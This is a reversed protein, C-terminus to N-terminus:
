ETWTTKIINDIEAKNNFSIIMILGFSHRPRKYKRGLGVQVTNSDIRTFRIVINPNFDNKNTLCSKTIRSYNNNREETQKYYNRVSDKPLSFDDKTISNILM